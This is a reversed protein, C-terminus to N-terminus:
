FTEDKRLDRMIESLLRAQEKREFPKILERDPHYDLRRNRRFEDIFSLLCRKIEEINCSGAVKGASFSIVMDKLLGENVLAFVPKEAALYEFIKGTLVRNSISIQDEILLLLHASKLLSLVNQHELFGTNEVIGKFIPQDMFLANEPCINGAFIVKIQEKLGPNEQLILKLASLFYESTRRPYLSGAYVVCFRGGEKDIPEKISKFDESDFGNNICFLKNNKCINNHRKQIDGKIAENVTVVADANRLVFGELIGEWFNAWPGKQRFGTNFGVWDDRFDLVLPRRTIKKIIAASIFSSFPEGSAYIVDISEEKVIRLGNFIAFPIWGIRSDPLLLYREIIRKIANICYPAKKKAQPVENARKRWCNGEISSTRFVKVHSPIEGALSADYSPVLPNKVTLVFPQWGFSPLYKVFKLTRVSRDLAVPPFSYAIVLVKKVSNKEKDIM